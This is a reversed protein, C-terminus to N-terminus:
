QVRLPHVGGRARARAMFGRARVDASPRGCALHVDAGLVIYRVIFCGESAHSTVQEQYVGCVESDLLLLNRYVGRFAAEYYSKNYESWIYVECAAPRACIYAGPSKHGQCALSLIKILIRDSEENTPRHVSQFRRFWNRRLFLALRVASYLEAAIETSFKM